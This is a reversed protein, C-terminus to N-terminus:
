QKGGLICAVYMHGAYSMMIIKTLFYFPAGFNLRGNAATSLCEGSMSFSCAHVPSRPLRKGTIVMPLNARELLPHTAMKALEQQRNLICRFYM